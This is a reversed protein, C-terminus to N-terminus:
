ITANDLVAAAVREIVTNLNNAPVASVEARGGGGGGFVHGVPNDAVGPSGRPADLAIEINLAVLVFAANGVLGGVDDAPLLILFLDLM